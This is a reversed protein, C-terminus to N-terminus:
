LNMIMDMAKQYNDEIEIKSIANIVNQYKDRDYGNDVMLDLWSKMIQMDQHAKEGRINGKQWYHCDMSVIAEIALKKFSFHRENFACINVKHDIDVIIYHGMNKRLRKIVYSIAEHKDLVEMEYNVYRAFDMPSIICPDIRNHFMVHLAEEQTFM